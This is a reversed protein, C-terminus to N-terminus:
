VVDFLKLSYGAHARRDAPIFWRGSTATSMRAVSALANLQVFPIERRPRYGDRGYQPLNGINWAFPLVMM